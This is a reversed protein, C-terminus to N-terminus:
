LDCLQEQLLFSLALVCCMKGPLVMSTIAAQLHLTVAYFFFQVVSSPTHFRRLTSFIFHNQAFTFLWGVHSSNDRGDKM